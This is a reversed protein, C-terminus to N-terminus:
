ASSVKTERSGAQDRVYDILAVMIGMLWWPMPDGSVFGSNHFQSNILFAFLGYIAGMGIWKISPDLQSARHVMKSLRFLGLFLVIILILSPIGGSVIANLFINHPSIIRENEDFRTSLFKVYEEGSTGILLNPVSSVALEIASGAVQGRKPDQLNFIRGLRYGGGAADPTSDYFRDFQPLVLILVVGIVGIAILYKHIGRSTSARNKRSQGWFTLMMSLLFVAATAAVASRSQSFIIGTLLTCTLIIGLVFQPLHLGRKHIVWSYVLLGLTILHYSLSISFVSLGPVFGYDGFRTGLLNDEQGPRLSLAVDWAQEFGFWQAIAFASSLVATFALAGAFFIIHRRTTLRNQILIFGVLAFVHSSFISFILDRLLAGQAIGSMVTWAIFILYIISLDRAITTKFLRKRKVALLDLLLLFGLIGMVYIRISFPGIDLNGFFLHGVIAVIVGLVHYSIKMMMGSVIFLGIGIVGLAVRTIPVNQLLGIGDSSSGYVVAGGIFLLAILLFYFRTNLLYEPLNM